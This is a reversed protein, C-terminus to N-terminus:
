VANGLILEIQLLPLTNIEITEQVAPCSCAPSPVPKPISHFHRLMAAFHGGLHKPCSGAVSWAGPATIEWSSLSTRLAPWLRCARLTSLLWIQLGWELMWGVPRLWTAKRGALHGLQLKLLHQDVSLYWQSGSSSASWWQYGQTLLM